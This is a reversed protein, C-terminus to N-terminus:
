RIDEAVIQFIDSTNSRNYASLSMSISHVVEVGGDVESLSSLEVVDVCGEVEEMSVAFVMSVVLDGSRPVGHAVVDLLPVVYVEESVSGEGGLFFRERM